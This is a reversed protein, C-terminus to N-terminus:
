RQMEQVTDNARALENLGTKQGPRGLVAVM